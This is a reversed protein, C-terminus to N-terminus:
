NEGSATPAKVRCREGQPGCWDPGYLKKRDILDFSFPRGRRAPLSSVLYREDM